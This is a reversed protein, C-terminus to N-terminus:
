SNQPLRYNRHHPPLEVVARSGLNLERLTTSFLSALSEMKLFSSCYGFSFFISFFGSFTGGFSLYLSINTISASINQNLFTVKRWSCPVCCDRWIRGTQLCIDKVFWILVDAITVARLYLTTMGSCHTRSRCRYLLFTNSITHITVFLLINVNTRDLMIQSVITVATM